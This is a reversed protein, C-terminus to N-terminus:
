RKRVGAPASTFFREVYGEITKARIREQNNLGGGQSHAGSFLRNMNEEVFRKGLNIAAPNAIIFLVRQKPVLEGRRIAEILEDCIEIPATEDGHVACSLVLDLPGPRQPTFVVVGSDWVQMTTQTGDPSDIQQESLVPHDSDIGWEHDRTFALFSQNHLVVSEKQQTTKETENRNRNTRRSMQPLQPRTSAPVLIVCSHRASM